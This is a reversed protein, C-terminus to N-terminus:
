WRIYTGHCPFGCFLPKKLPMGGGRSSLALLFKTKFYSLYLKTAMDSFFVKKAAERLLFCNNGYNINDDLWSSLVDYMMMKRRSSYTWSTRDM